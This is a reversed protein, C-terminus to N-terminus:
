AIPDLRSNCEIVKVQRLSQLVLTTPTIGVYRVNEIIICSKTKFLKTISNSYPDSNILWM